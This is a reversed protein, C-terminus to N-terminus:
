IRLSTTLEEIGNFFINWSLFEMIRIEFTFLSLSLSLSSHEFSDGLYNVEISGLHEIAVLFIKSFSNSRDFFNEGRIFCYCKYNEFLFNLIRNCFTGYKTRAEM